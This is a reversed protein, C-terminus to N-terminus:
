ENDNEEILIEYKLLTNFAIRFSMNTSKEAYAGLNDDVEQFDNFLREICSKFVEFKFINLELGHQEDNEETPKNKNKVRVKKLEETTYNPRCKEIVKDIDIYYNKGLVELM